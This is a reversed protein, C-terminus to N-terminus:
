AKETSKADAPIDNMLKNYAQTEKELERKDGLLKKYNEGKQQVDAKVEKLQEELRIIIDNLPALRMNNEQKARRVNEEITNIRTYTSIIEMELSKLEKQLNKLEKNGAELAETNKAEKEKINEFKNKYWEETEKLNKEAVKEYHERMDKVTESLNSKQPEIEVKVESNIIKERLDKVEENHEKELSELVEKIIKIEDQHEEQSQKIQEREKKLNELYKESEKNKETEKNQRKEFDELALKTCDIQVLLKANEKTLEKIAM